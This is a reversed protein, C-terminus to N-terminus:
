EHYRRRVAADDSVLLLRPLLRRAPAGHTVSRCRGTALVPEPVAGPEPLLSPLLEQRAYVPLARRCASYGRWVLRQQECGAHVVARRTRAGVTGLDRCPQFRSM